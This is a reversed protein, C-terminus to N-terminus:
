EGVFRLYLHVQDRCESALRRVEVLLRRTELDASKAILLEWERLFPEMQPRNFVTDGYRDIYPLYQYPPNAEEPLISYLLGKPDDIQELASRDEDELVINFGM